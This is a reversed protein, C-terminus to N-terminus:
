DGEKGVAVGYKKKLYNIAEEILQPASKGKALKEALVIKDYADSHSQQLSVTRRVRQPARQREPKELQVAGGNMSDVAIKQEEENWGKSM